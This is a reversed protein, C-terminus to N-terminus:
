RHLGSECLSLTTARMDSKCGASCAYCLTREPRARAIRASRRAVRERIRRHQHHGPHVGRTCRRADVDADSPATLSPGICPRPDARASRELIQSSMDDFRTELQELLNEVQINTLKM